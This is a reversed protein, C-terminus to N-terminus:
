SAKKANENLKDAKLTRSWRGNFCPNLCGTQSKSRSGRTRSWRGNFCPNLCTSVVRVAEKLLGLGDEMLVLILVSLHLGSECGRQPGLGDEMLVLILVKIFSYIIIITPGLGDEMLVLILVKLILCLQKIYHGLGDEMLVLILVRILLPQPCIQQDSVM